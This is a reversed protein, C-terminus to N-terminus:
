GVSWRSCLSFKKFIEIWYILEKLKYSINYPAVLEYSSGCLIIKAWM